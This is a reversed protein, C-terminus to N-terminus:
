AGSAFLVLGIFVETASTATATGSGFLFKQAFGIFAMLLGFSVFSYLIPAWNSGEGQNVERFANVGLWVASIFLFLLLAGFFFKPIASIDAGSGTDKFVDDAGKRAGSFFDQANAPLGVILFTTLSIGLYLLRLKFNSIKM